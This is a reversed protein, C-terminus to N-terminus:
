PTRRRIGKLKVNMIDTDLQLVQGKFVHTRPEISIEHEYAGGEVDDFWITMTIPSNVRTPFFQKELFRENTPEGNSYERFLVETIQGAPLYELPVFRTEHPVALSTGEGFVHKIPQVIVNLACAAGVNQLRLVHKGPVEEFRPVVVPRLNIENQRVMERRLGSTEDTYRETAKTYRWVLYATFALVITQLALVGVQGWELNCM